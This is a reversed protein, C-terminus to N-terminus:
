RPDSGGLEILRHYTAWRLPPIRAAMADGFEFLASVPRWQLARIYYPVLRMCLVSPAHTRARGGFCSRLMRVDGRDLPREDLTGMRPIGFRGVVHRKALRFVGLADFTELFCARGGPRLVRAIERAAPELELHHLIFNGVVADVADDPLALAACDCQLLQIRDDVRNRQARRRARFLAEESVDISLVRAGRLAMAISLFGTGTGVDLVTKGRLDGLLELLLENHVPVGLFAFGSEVPDHFDALGILDEDDPDDAFRDNWFARERAAKDAPPNM